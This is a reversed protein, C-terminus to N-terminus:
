PWPVALEPCSGIRALIAGECDCLEERPAPEPARVAITSWPFRPAHRPVEAAARGRGYCARAVRLHKFPHKSSHIRLLEHKKGISLATLHM